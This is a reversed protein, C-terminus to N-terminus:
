QGSSLLQSQKLLHVKLYTSTISSQSTESDKVSISLEVASSCSLSRSPFDAAIWRGLHPECHQCQKESGPIPVVKVGFSAPSTHPSFSFCRTWPIPGSVTFCVTLWRSARGDLAATSASHQGSLSGSSRLGTTWHSAWLAGPECLEAPQWVAAM